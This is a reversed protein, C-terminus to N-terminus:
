SLPFVGDYLIAGSYEDSVLLWQAQEGNALRMRVKSDMEWVAHAEHGRKVKLQRQQGQPSRNIRAQHFWRQLTRAQPLRADPWKQKLLTGILLAGWTPHARKLWVAGRYVRREARPGPRGCAAYNPQVSGRDRFRRWIDRVTWISMRMHQAIAPLSMGAQHHHIIIEAKPVPIPVAM